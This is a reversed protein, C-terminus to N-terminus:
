SCAQLAIKLEAPAHKLILELKDKCRKENEKDVDSRLNKLQESLDAPDLEFEQRKVLRVLPASVYESNTHSVLSEDTPKTIGM